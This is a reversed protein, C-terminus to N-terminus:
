RFATPASPDGFARLAAFGSPRVSLELEISDSSSTSSSSLLEFSFCSKVTKRPDLVRFSTLLSMAFNLAGDQSAM